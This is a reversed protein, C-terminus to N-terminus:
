LEMCTGPVSMNYCIMGYCLFNEQQDLDITTRLICFQCFFIVSRKSAKLWANVNNDLSKTQTEEVQIMVSRTIICSSRWLLSFHKFPVRGFIFFAVRWGGTNSLDLL